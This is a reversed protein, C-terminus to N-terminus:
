KGNFIPEYIAKIMFIGITARIHAKKPGKFVYKLKYDENEPIEADSLIFDISITIM